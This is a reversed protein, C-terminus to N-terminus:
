GETGEPLVDVGQATVDVSDTLADADGLPPPEEVQDPLRAAADMRYPYARKEDGDL